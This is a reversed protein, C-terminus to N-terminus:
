ITVVLSFFNSHVEPGTIGAHMLATIFEICDSNQVVLCLAVCMLNKGNQLKLNTNVIQMADFQVHLTMNQIVQM